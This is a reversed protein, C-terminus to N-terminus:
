RYRRAKTNKKDSENGIVYGLKVGVQAGILDEKRM